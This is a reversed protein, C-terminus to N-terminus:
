RPSIKCSNELPNIMVAAEPDRPVSFTVLLFAVLAIVDDFALIAAAAFDRQQLYLTRAIACLCVAGPVSYSM